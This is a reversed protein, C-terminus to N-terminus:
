YGLLLRKAARVVLLLIMASFDFGGFTPVFRRIPTLLPETLRTTIRVLPNDDPLNFWSLLVYLLVIASYIDFLLGLV